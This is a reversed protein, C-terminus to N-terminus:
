SFSRPFGFVPFMGADADITSPVSGSDRDERLALIRADWVQKLMILGSPDQDLKVKISIAADLIAAEEWGVVGDFVDNDAVLNQRAPIYHIRFTSAVQSAPLFRIYGSEIIYRYAPGATTTFVNWQFSAEEQLSTSMVPIWIPSPQAIPNTGTGLLYDCRLLEFFDAPLPQGLQSVTSTYNYYFMKGYRLPDAQALENFLGDFAMNIFSNIEQLSPNDNQGPTWTASSSNTAGVVNTGLMDLYSGVRYRAQALTINKM